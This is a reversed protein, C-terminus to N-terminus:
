SVDVTSAVTLSVAPRSLVIQQDTVTLSSQGCSAAIGNSDLTLTATSGGSPQYNLAIGNESTITIGSKDFTITAKHVENKIVLQESGSTDELQIVQGSKTRIIKQEQTPASGDVTKPTEDKPYWVASWIPYNIDGNVFEVWVTDNHNPVFFYGPLFAPAARVKIPQSGSGEATEELIGPVTVVVEGRHSGSDPPSNDAVLGAYKGFYREPPQRGYRPDEDTVPM